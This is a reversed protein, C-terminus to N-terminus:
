RFFYINSYKIEMLKIENPDDTEDVLQIEPKLNLKLLSNIWRNKHTHQQTIDHRAETM